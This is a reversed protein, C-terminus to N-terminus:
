NIIDKRGISYYELPFTEIEKLSYCNRGDFIVPYKMAQIFTNPSLQKFQDWDTLIYVMESDKLADEISNAYNIREKWVAKARNMAKPDFVRIVAGEQLLRNIMTISPAQRLDDTNPKFSLGLITVQKGQLSGFRKKAMTIMQNRQYQNIEEVAELLKPQYGQINAQHILAQIDKPLCSGGYGIGAKLFHLGIRHDLGMGYAVEEVDAGVMQCINAMENIFSIKTALFANSAYKIMEATELNTIVFETQLSEYLEKVRKAAEPSESGIVVRDTHFMDYLAQGERLFEPNSVVSFDKPESMAEQIWQIMKRNTGVPVTSKTVVIFDNTQCYQGIAYSVQQIFSLDAAGEPTPPTGVGIFLFEAERYAEKEDTTFSMREEKLHKEISEQMGKEYIDVIGQKLQQIKNQDIDVVKVQHGLDALFVGTSLGVYGAGVVTIKKM